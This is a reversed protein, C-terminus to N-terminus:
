SSSSEPKGVAKSLLRGVLIGLWSAIGSLMLTGLVLMVSLGFKGDNILRAMDDAFASYTTFGGMFGTAIFLRFRQERFDRTGRLALFSIIAGLLFSGVVNVLLIGIPIGDPIPFLSSIWYRSLTGLSGGAGVLALDSLPIYRKAETQAM